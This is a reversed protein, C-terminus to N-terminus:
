LNSNSNCMASDGLATLEGLCSNHYHKPSTPNSLGSEHIPSLAPSRNRLVNKRRNRRHASLANNISPLQITNKDNLSHQEQHFALTDVIKRLDTTSNMKRRSPPSLTPVTRSENRIASTPLITQISITPTTQELLTLPRVQNQKVSISTVGHRCRPRRYREIMRFMHRLRVVPWPRVLRTRSRKGSKLISNSSTLKKTLTSASCSKISEENFNNEDKSPIINDINNDKNSKNVNNIVEIQNLAANRRMEMEHNYNTACKTINNDNQTSNPNCNIRNISPNDETGECVYHQDNEYITEGSEAHLMANISQIPDSPVDPSQPINSCCNWKRRWRHHKIVTKVCCRKDHMTIHKINIDHNIEKTNKTQAKINKIKFSCYTCKEIYNLQSPNVDEDILNSSNQNHMAEQQLQRNYNTKMKSCCHFATIPMSISKSTSQEEIMSCIYFTESSDNIQMKPIKNNRHDNENECAAFHDGDHNNDGRNLGDINNHVVNQCVQSRDCCHLTKPRKNMGNLLLKSQQVASCIYIDKNLNKNNNIFRNSSPNSANAITPTDNARSIASSTSPYQSIVINLKPAESNSNSNMSIKAKNNNQRNNRIYEYTTLGLFSIYIHFFCLHLLLGATVAALIGLLAIFGFFVTDSVTIGSYHIVNGTQTKNIIELVTENYFTQNLSLNTTLTSINKTLSVTLNKENNSRGWINLWDPQIHYFVIELIVAALIVLAAILASVVCMLFPVYNRGGICHNLWKCHHDFKGVCKNCVSCHKTRNSSTKINCLHCRGNEIVHSHISRDFEPVIHKRNCLKRLEDDAPDILLASLHSIIHIFYLVTLIAFLTQQLHRNFSPILLIFSSLGFILLAIWGIIQLPHLPLQLGNLRRDRRYETAQLKDQYSCLAGKLSKDKHLQQDENTKKLKQERNLM